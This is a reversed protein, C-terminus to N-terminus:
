LVRFCCVACPLFVIVTEVTDCVGAGLLSSPHGRQKIREAEAIEREGIADQHRGHTLVRAGVPKGGIPVKNMQPTARDAARRQHKGLRARDRGLAADAGRIEADIAVAVDVHEAADDPKNVRLAAGGTHLQGM